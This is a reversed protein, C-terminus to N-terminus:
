LHLHIPLLSRYSERVRGREKVGIVDYKDDATQLAISFRQKHLSFSSLFSFTKSLVFSSPFRDGTLNKTRNKVSEQQFDILEKSM